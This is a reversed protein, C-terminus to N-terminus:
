LIYRTTDEDEVVDGIKEKVLAEDVIIKEGSHEDASFSIEELIREMVTHLRRAGIDETKENAQLSYSAIARLASEDFLLEVDEVAMLAEYQKILSNNPETL